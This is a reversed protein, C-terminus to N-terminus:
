WNDRVRIYGSLTMTGDQNVQSYLQGPKIAIPTIVETLTVDRPVTNVMRELLSQCTSLFFENSAAMRSIM